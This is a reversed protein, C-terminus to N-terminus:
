SSNRSEKVRIWRSGLAELQALMTTGWDMNDPAEDYIVAVRTVDTLVEEVFEVQGKVYGEPTTLRFFHTFGREALSLSISGATIYPVSRAEAVEAVATVALTTYNGILAVVDDEDILKEAGERAKNTATVPDTEDDFPAPVEVTLGTDAMFHEVALNIGLLQAKGLEGYTGTMPLVVGMRITPNAEDSSGCGAGAGICACLVLMKYYSRTKM